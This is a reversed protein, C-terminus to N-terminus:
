VGNALAEGERGKRGVHAGLKTMLGIHAVEMAGMGMFSDVHSGNRLFEGERFM